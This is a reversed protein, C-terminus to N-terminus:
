MVMKVVANVIESTPTFALIVPILPAAAVVALQAVLRKTIPALAMEHIITYSNGLDALSQIDSAGLLPEPPPEVAHVWKRDFAETYQTGLRAYERLGARRVRVMKPVLLVLPCLAIVVSLVVFAGMLIKFSGLEAGEYALSNAIRGAFACGLACFLIGFRAQTLGLFHLGGARDPHTPMLHLDLRAVRWLFYAWVVYRFTWRYLVFHLLPASIAAYWWGATSLGDATTHWSSVVPAGWERQFMFVPFFALVLLSLECLASNRLRRVRNVVGEFEPLEKEQVIRNNVFEGVARRIGPDIVVEALLLLSLGIVLRGYMSFDYLFPITVGDGVALGDKFSLVLLPLWAIAVAAIARHLVNPLSERVLGIRHLFDYVPGGVM